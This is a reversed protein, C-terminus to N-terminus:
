MNRRNNKYGYERGDNTSVSSSNASFPLCSPDFNLYYSYELVINVNILLSSVKVIKHPKKKWDIDSMQPLVTYPYCSSLGLRSMCIASVPRFYSSKACQNVKWIKNQADIKLDQYKPCWNKFRPIFIQVIQLLYWM